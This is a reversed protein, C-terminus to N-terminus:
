KIEQLDVLEIDPDVWRNTEHLFQEIDAVLWVPRKGQIIDYPEPLLGRQRWVYVTGLQVRALKAVGAADVVKRRQKPTKAKAM